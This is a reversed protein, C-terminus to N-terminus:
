VLRGVAQFGPMTAHIQIKAGAQLNRVRFQIFRGVQNIYTKYWKKIGKEFVLNTCNCQLPNPNVNNTQIAEETDNTIIDIEVRAKEDASAIGGVTYPTFGTANIGNLTFSNSSLVTIFYQGGNLETMGGVGNITIQSGNQFGHAQSTFILCPSTQQASIIEADKTLDTGSTSVYMYLWGCRVKKDMNVFPNFKKFTAVFPIVRSSTGGSTYASFNATSTVYVRFTYNNTVSIIPYQKNNAQVMGSLGTLFITDAGKEPDDTNLSYNNWDTTIELTTNDIITINRIKQPNDEVENINLRWIEGHHGGGVSIPTGKTVAFDNWDGYVQAFEQWNSFNLLDAWTVDFSIIYTGMCSLPLRYISFNDEDYNDTLIRKSQTSGPTPYLLYHDRDEDVTGAFCLEFNDQDVDNFSFDPLAEDRREVQYGDSIIMGRPSIASTKNLYTIVGFPASSGRSEDIKNLVFPVTDNGTYKLTWSQDTFILQDDRNFDSGNIWSGDPIDIKGAGTSTTNFNDCLIGTGSIRIRQPKVLSNETTRLLILRSKNDFVELALLRTIPSGTDSTMAFDPAAATPYNVYDGVANTLHPAYYQVQDANNTFILRPNGDKDKYNVWSWFNKNTGSYILETTGGSSYATYATTDVNLLFTSGGNVTITFEINNVQNMGVVGYIFVRDGTALNHAVGTTVEGNGAQTIATIAVTKNLSTLRNTITDYINVFKTSAVIMKKENTATIFEMIGMVPLDPHYDYTVTLQTGGAVNNLFTISVDGTTYNITGSGGAPVTVFGGVGNDTATQGGATITVSGRRAPLNQIRFTYPGPTGNGTVLAAGSTRAQETTIRNIMRSECYSTGGRLGIALPNYGQRKNLVGRYVFGDYLTEQADDPSLWPQLEKDLGTSFAAVLYPQYTM